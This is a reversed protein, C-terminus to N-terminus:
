ERDEKTTIASDHEDSSIECHMTVLQLARCSPLEMIAPGPTDAVYFEADCKADRHTCPLLMTGYQVIREGNYATLVTSCTKLSTPQPYGETDLNEPCMQRYIRLPLVNGQAGTDVKVKLTAPKHKRGFRIDLSAYVETRVDKNADITDFMLREFGDELGSTNDINHVSTSRSSSKHRSKSRNRKNAGRSAQRSRSEYESRLNESASCVIKWHNRRGCKACQSGYAPCRDRGLPHNGGCYKCSQHQQKTYRKHNIQNITTEGNFQKMDTMTAEFTRAMDMAGNLTLTADHSLLKEQIRAHKIGVTLQEILREDTEIADRFNCKKAQLTCRTMYEDVSEHEAQRYRQLNFRNLRYNTKPEIMRAFGNWLVSLKKRADDTLDWTNYMRLGEQGVWLLVYTVRTAEDKDVLLGSFILECYQKFNYFTTPLDASSWDMRPPDIGSLDGM